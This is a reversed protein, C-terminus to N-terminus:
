SQGALNLVAKLQRLLAHLVDRDDESLEDPHIANLLRSLVEVDDLLASRRPENTDHTHM